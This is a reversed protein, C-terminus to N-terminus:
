CDGDPITEFVVVPEMCLFKDDDEDVALGIVIVDLYTGFKM